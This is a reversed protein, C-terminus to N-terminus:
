MEFNSNPSCFEDTTYDCYRCDDADRLDIIEYGRGWARTLQDNEFHRTGAWSKLLFSLASTKRM